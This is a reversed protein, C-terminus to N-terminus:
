MSSMLHEVPDDVHPDADFFQLDYRFMAASGILTAFGAISVIITSWFGFKFHAWFDYNVNVAKAQGAVIINAASGVLPLNGAITTAWAVM